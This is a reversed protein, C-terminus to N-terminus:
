KERNHLGLNADAFVVTQPLLGTPRLDPKM